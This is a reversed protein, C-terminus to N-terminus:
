HWSPRGWALVPGLLNQCVAPCSHGAPSLSLLGLCLLTQLKKPMQPTIRSVGCHSCFAGRSCCVMTANPVAARM